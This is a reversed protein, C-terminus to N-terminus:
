REVYSDTCAVHQSGADDLNKCQSITCFTMKKSEKMKGEMTSTDAHRTDGVCPWNSRLVIQVSQMLGHGVHRALKTSQSGAFRM